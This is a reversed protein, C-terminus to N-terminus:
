LWRPWGPPSSPVAPLATRIKGARYALAGERALVPEHDLPLAASGRRPRGRHHITYRETPRKRLAKALIADLDGRLVKRAPGSSHDSLRAPTEDLAARIHEARTSGLAAFPLRGVLLVHLLVGLQYVDTATSPPEGLIQEPAAYAPTLAADETRTAAAEKTDAFDAALLKAVGFDLLKVEGTSTVLVNSPKIDRHVILNSHAHAVAALVNLFLGVRAQLDLSHSACFQDIHEGKVYELVLYPRGGPMVGADILRAINPHALRALLRGERIFRDLSVAAPSIAELFKVAFLGEFRGDSRHALWVEGMGGRGLLSDIAYAGVRQGLLPPPAPLFKFPIELFDAEPGDRFRQTLLARLPPEIDPDQAAIGALWSELEHTPIDHAQDLFPFIRAWLQLEVDNM